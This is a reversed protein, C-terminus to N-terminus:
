ALLFNEPLFAAGWLLECNEPHRAPSSRANGELTLRTSSVSALIQRQCYALPGLSLCSHCPPPSPATAQDHEVRMVWHVVYLRGPEETWPIRWALISSHTAMEKTFINCPFINLSRMPRIPARCSTRLGQSTQSHSWLWKSQQRSVLCMLYFSTSSLDVFLGTTLPLFHPLSLGVNINRM